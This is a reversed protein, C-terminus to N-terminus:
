HFRRKVRHSGAEQMKESRSFSNSENDYENELDLFIFEKVDPHWIEGEELMGRRWTEDYTKRLELQLERLRPLWYRMQTVYPKLRVVEDRLRELESLAKYAQAEPSKVNGSLEDPRKGNMGVQLLWFCIDSSDKWCKSKLKNIRAMVAKWAANDM